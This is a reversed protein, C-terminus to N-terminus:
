YKSALKNIVKEAGNITFTIEIGTIGGMMCAESINLAEEETEARVVAVIGCDSIRRLINLKEM